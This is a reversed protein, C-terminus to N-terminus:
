HPQIHTFPVSGEGTVPPIGDWKAIAAKRLEIEKMKLINEGQLSLQRNVEAEQKAKTIITQVDFLTQQLEIKKKMLDNQINVSEKIMKDVEEPPHVEGVMVDDLTISMAELKPALIDRIVTGFQKREKSMLDFISLKGSAANVASVVEWRIYETQIADQDKDGFNSFAKVVDGPNFHYAISVDVPLIAGEITSAKISDDGKKQGEVPNQVFSVTHMRTPYQYLREWVGYLEVKPQIVKESIGSQADFKIGVYGPDISQCGCGSCVLSIMVAIAAMLWHRFMVKEPKNM